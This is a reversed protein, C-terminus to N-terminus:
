FFFVAREGFGESVDAPVATHEGIFDHGLWLGPVVNEGRHNRHAIRVAPLLLASLDERLESFM